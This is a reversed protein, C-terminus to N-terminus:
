YTLTKKTANELFKQKNKEGGSFFELDTPLNGDKLGDVVSSIDSEDDIENEDESISELLTRKSVIERTKPFVKKITDSFTIRKAKPTSTEIGIAEAVRENGDTDDTRDLLFRQAQSLTSPTAPPTLPFSLRNSRTNGSDNNDNDNDDDDKIGLNFKSINDLRKQIDLDKVSLAKGIADLESKEKPKNTLLQNYISGLVPNQIDFKSKDRFMFNTATPKNM